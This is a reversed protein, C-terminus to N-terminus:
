SLATMKYLLETKFNINNMDIYILYKESKIPKLLTNFFLKLYLFM